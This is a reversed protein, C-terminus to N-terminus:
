GGPLRRVARGRRLHPRLQPVQHLAQPRASPHAVRRVARVARTVRSNRPVPATASLWASCSAPLPPTAPANCAAPPKGGPRLRTSTWSWRTSTRAPRVPLVPIHNRKDDSLPKAGIDFFKPQHRELRTGPAACAAKPDRGSVYADIAIAARRGAAIAEVVTAPGTECDGGAFVGEKSTALTSKDAEITGWSTFTCSGGLDRDDVEQGIALIVTDAAVTFESDAVPEPRRRGSEDPEGLEMKQCVAGTVRGDERIVSVPATLLLLNVGEEEAEDVEDTTAPMEERTRRYVLTVEGAGLRVASRAADVATFGGGVILTRGLPEKWARANSERLFDVAPYIGQGGEAGPIGGTSGCQAGIALYIADYGDAELSDITVHEGLRCGLRLEVGLRLIDDVEEAIVYRPLRYPPIGTLM